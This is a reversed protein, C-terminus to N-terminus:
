TKHAFGVRIHLMGTVSIGGTRAGGGSVGGGGRVSDPIIQPPNNSTHGCKHCYHCDLSLTSGEKWPMIQYKPPCGNSNGGNSDQQIFM